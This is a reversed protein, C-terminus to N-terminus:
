EELIVQVVPLHIKRELLNYIPRTVKDYVIWIVFGSLYIICAAIVLHLIMVFINQHVAWNVNVFKLIYGHTLYVTFGAKALINIIKSTNMNWRSFLIFITAANVILLPNCYEWATRETLYGIRDNVVAWLTLIITNLLLLVGFKNNKVAVGYFRIYAGVCYMLLFNVISYGWQSGYMGISSLGGIAEGKVAGLIDVLTPYVSFLLIAVLLFQKLTKQNVKQFIVNVFPSILFTTVYLIVFYNSPILAGVLHKVSFDMKGVAVRAGYILLSFLMVQVILEMAKWLNRKSSKCLFYGSILIFLDVACAFLSEFFYMGYYNPSGKDVYTLGGGALPNNLHLVIVGSIALIRLLEINSSRERKM